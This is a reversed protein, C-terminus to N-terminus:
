DATNGFVTRAWKRQVRRSEDNWHLLDQLLASADILSYESKQHVLKVLRTLRMLLYGDEDWRTDLLYEIRKQMSASIDGNKIMDALCIELPKGKETGPDSICRLCAVAYWKASDREGVISPLCRYFAALVPGDAEGLMTGASRRLAAREGTSLKDLRDFFSQQLDTM